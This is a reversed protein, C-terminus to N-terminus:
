PSAPELRFFQQPRNSSNTLALVWESNALLTPAPAPQWLIPPTLNTTEVLQLGPEWAPWSLQPQGNNTHGTEDSNLQPQQPLLEIM